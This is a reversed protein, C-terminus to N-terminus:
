AAIVTLKAGKSTASATTAANTTICRYANGNLGTSNSIALTALTAGTYVGANIVNVYAASGIKVQWQYTAAGDTTGVTFSTAAPATISVATPQLNIGFEVDGVIADDAADGSVANLISMSVLCETQYSTQGDSTVKENILYWGPGRIGKARNAELQAEELSVFFCKAKDAASLWKPKSADLDTIGFLAM